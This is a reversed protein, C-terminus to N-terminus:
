SLFKFIKLVLLAKLIFYSNKVMKSPSNNFCIFFNKNPLHSDSKFNQASTIFPNEECIEFVKKLETYTIKCPFSFLM